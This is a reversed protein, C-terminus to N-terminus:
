DKALLMEYASRFHNGSEEEVAREAVEAMKKQGGFARANAVWAGIWRRGPESTFYVRAEAAVTSQWPRDIGSIESTRYMSAWNNVIERYLAELAVADLEDLDAPRLAARALTVRPDEGMIAVNRATIRSILDATMQAHALQKSQNLEFIVLGLGIM